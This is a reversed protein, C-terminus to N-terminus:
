DIIEIENLFDNFKKASGEKVTRYALLATIMLEQSLDQDFHAHADILPRLETVIISEDCMQLGLFLKDNFNNIKM